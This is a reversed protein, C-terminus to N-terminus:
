EYKLTKAPSLTAAKISQLVLAFLALGILSFGSVIFIWWHMDVRFTFNQLWTNMIWYAIPSSIIMAIIGLLIFERSLGAIIDIVSAGLIKRVGIEKIRRETNFAALGILGMITIIIALLTVYLLITRTFEEMKYHRYIVEDLFTFSFEQDPIIESFVKHIEDLTKHMQGQEVKIYLQGGNVTNYLVFPRIPKHLSETHYNKVVGIIVGSMEMMSNEAWTIQKGLPESIGMAKVAEENVVCANSLDSPHESSFFRGQAMELNFTKLYDDDVRNFGVDFVNDPDKGPWSLGASAQWQTMDFQALTASKININKLLEKKLVHSKEMVKNHIPVIVINEHDFGLPKTQLFHVQYYIISVCIIFFISLTFQVTVLLKRLVSPKTYINNASNSKLLGVPILGSMFFAPYGGAAIGTVMVLILLTAWHDTVIFKLQEGLLTNVFPLVLKVFLVSIILAFVSFLVSELLFQVLLQYRGAGIVKKVAIEKTRVSARATSMNVYNICAMVLIFLALLSFIYVYVIRGGQGDLAHLHIDKLPQLFLYNPSGDPNLDNYVSIIKENVNQMDINDHLMVFLQGSKISTSKFVEPSYQYPLLFDFQIHSNVPPTKIVAAVSFQSNGLMISKGLAPENSFLKKEVKDTIVISKPESLATSANGSILSFSFMDLFDPHVIGASAFMEKGQNSLNWSPNGFFSAYSIEPYKEVLIEALGGPMVPSYFVKEDTNNTDTYFCIRYLQDFNKHFRDFGLEHEVWLMIIISCAIGIALGVINNITYIKNKMVQRFIIRINNM